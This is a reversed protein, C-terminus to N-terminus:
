LSFAGGTIPWSTRLLPQIPLKAQISDWAQIKLWSSSACDENVAVSVRVAKAPDGHNGHVMANALAERVALGIKEVDEWCATRDIAETIEAVAGDLLSLDSPIVRDLSLVLQPIQFDGSRPPGDPGPISQRRWRDKQSVGPKAARHGMTM